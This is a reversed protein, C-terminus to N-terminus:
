DYGTGGEVKYVKVAEEKGKVKVTDVYTCKFIDKVLRYTAESILIDCAYQKTLGELRSSLNVTDGIVTYDLKQESGINGLIADGTHIGIGVKLPPYGEAM